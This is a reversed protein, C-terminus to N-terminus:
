YGPPMSLLLLSNASDYIIRISIEKEILYIVYFNRDALRRTKLTTISTHDHIYSDLVGLFTHFGYYTPIWIVSSSVEEGDQMDVGQELVIGSVFEALSESFPSKERVTIEAPFESNVALSLQVSLKYCLSFLIILRLM